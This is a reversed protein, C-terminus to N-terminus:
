DNHGGQNWMPHENFEEGFVEKFMAYFEDYFPKTLADYQEDTMDIDCDVQPFNMDFSFMDSMYDQEYAIRVAEAFCQKWREKSNIM